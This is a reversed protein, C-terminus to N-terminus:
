VDRVLSIGGYTHTSPYVDATSNYTLTVSPVCLDYNTATNNM